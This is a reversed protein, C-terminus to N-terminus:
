WSNFLTILSLSKEQLALYWKVPCTDICPAATQNGSSVTLYAATKTFSKLRWIM